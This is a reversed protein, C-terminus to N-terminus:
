SRDSDYAKPNRAIISGLSQLLFYLSFVNPDSTTELGDVVNFIRDGVPAEVQQAIIDVYNIKLQRDFFILM